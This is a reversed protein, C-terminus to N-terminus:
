LPLDMWILTQRNYFGAAQFVAPMFDAPGNLSLAHGRGISRRGQVLLELLAAEDASGDLPAALLLNEGHPADELWTLVGALRNKREVCWHQVFEFSVIQYFTGALGPQLARNNYTLQWSLEPPYWCALWDQQQPWHAKRRNVLRLGTPAMPSPLEPRAAWTTRRARERFGLASYIHVAPANEARVQLWACNARRDRAHEIARATLARGIGRGRQEPHVAVNAVLYGRLGQPQIPILSINGIVRDHEEWVYGIMPMSGAQEALNYAWTLLPSTRAMARLQRLYGFGDADLTETFCLEILDAVQLLDRRPDLARLHGEQEYSTLLTSATSM